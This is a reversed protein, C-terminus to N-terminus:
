TSHIGLYGPRAGPARTRSVRALKGSIGGDVGSVPIISWTWSAELGPARSGPPVTTVWGGPRTGPDGAGAERRPM